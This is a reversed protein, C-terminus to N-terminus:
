HSTVNNRETNNKRHGRPKQLEQPNKAKPNQPKQNIREQPEQPNQKKAKRPNPNRHGLTRCGVLLVFFFSFLCSCLPCFLFFCLFLFCSSFVFFFPSSPFWCRCWCPLSASCTYKGLVKSPFHRANGWSWGANDIQPQNVTSYNTNWQKVRRARGAFINPAVFAWREMGYLWIISIISILGAVDLSMWCALFLFFSSLLLLVFFSFSSSFLSSFCITLFLFVVCGLLCPPVAIPDERQTSTNRGEGLGELTTWWIQYKSTIPTESSWRARGAFISINSCSGSMSRIGYDIVSSSSPGLQM